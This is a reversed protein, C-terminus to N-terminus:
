SEDTSERAVDTTSTRRLLMFKGSKRELATPLPEQDAPADKYSDRDEPRSPGSTSVVIPMKGM